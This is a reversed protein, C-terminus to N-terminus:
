ETCIPVGKCLTIEKVCQEGNKFSVTTHGFKATQKCVGNCPDRWSQKVGNCKVSGDIMDKFCTGNNCCVYKLTDEILIIDKGCFCPKERSEVCKDGCLYEVDWNSCEIRECQSNVYFLTLMVFIRVIAELM